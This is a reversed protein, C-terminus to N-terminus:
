PVTRVSVARRTGLFVCLYVCKFTSTPMIARSFLRGYLLSLSVDLYTNSIVKSVLEGIWSSGSRGQTMILLQQTKSPTSVLESPAAISAEDYPWSPKLLLLLTTLRFVNLYFMLPRAISLLQRTVIHRLPRRPASSL